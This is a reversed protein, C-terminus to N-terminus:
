KPLYFEAMQEITSLPVFLLFTYVNYYLAARLWAAWRTIVPDPPSSLGAKRFYKQPDRNKITAAKITAVAEDISKVYARM